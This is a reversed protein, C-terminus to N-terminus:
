LYKLARKIRQISNKGMASLVLKEHRDFLMVIPVSQIKYADSVVFNHDLLVPFNLKLDKVVQGVAVENQDHPSRPMHILLISVDEPTEKSFSHLQRLLSKCDMCSISWFVLLLPFEVKKNLSPSKNLWNLPKQFPLFM